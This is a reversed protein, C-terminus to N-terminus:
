IGALFGWMLRYEELSWRPILLSASFGSDRYLLPDATDPSFAPPPRRALLFRRFVLYSRRCSDPHAKASCGVVALFIHHRTIGLSSSTLLYDMLFIRHAGFSCRHFFFLPFLVSSPFLRAFRPPLFNIPTVEIAPDEHALNLVYVSGFLFFFHSCSEAIPSLLVLNPLTPTVWHDGHCIRFLCFFFFGHLRGMFRHTHPRAVDLPPPQDALPPSPPALWVPTDVPWWLSFRM